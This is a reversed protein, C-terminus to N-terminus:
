LPAPWELDGLMRQARAKRLTRQTLDQSDPGSFGLVSFVSFNMLIRLHIKTLIGASLMLSSSRVGLWFLV